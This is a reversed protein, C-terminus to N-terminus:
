YSNGEGEEDEEESSEEEPQIKSGELGDGGTKILAALAPDVEYNAANASFPDDAGKKILKELEPNSAYDDAKAKFADDAGRKILTELAGHEVLPVDIYDPDKPKEVKPPPEKKVVPEPKPAPEEHKIGQLIAQEAKKQMMIVIVAIVFGVVLLVGVIILVIILTSMFDNYEESDAASTEGQATGDGQMTVKFQYSVSEKEFKESKAIAKIKYTGLFAGSFIGNVDRELKITEDGNEGSVVATMTITELLDEDGVVDNSDRLFAQIELTEKISILDKVKLKVFVSYFDLQKVKCNDNNANDLHLNWKGSKPYILKILAYSRASTMKINKENDSLSVKKGTPDTLVPNLKEIGLNSRIIINVYFVSSDKINITVNGDIIECDKGELKYIDSFIDSLISTLQDSTTTEYSKGNTSNSIKDIEKKDLTKDYNLGISYVPINKENLAKLTSDMEKQSEAETRPGNVLHTNGDSLLIIAKKRGKTETKEEHLNMAKTLGLAIDTDGNPDYSIASINKKMNKLSTESNLNEISGSAIIKQTYVAYGAACSDDCLDVFLNFADLAVKNPDSYLMSGSADVVFVVDLNMEGTESVDGDEAHVAFGVCNGAFIFLVLFLSLFKRVTNKM